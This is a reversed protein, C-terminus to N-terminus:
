RYKSAYFTAKLLKSKCIIKTKRTLRKFTLENNSSINQLMIPLPIIESSNKKMVKCINDYLKAPHPNQAIYIYKLFIFIQYLFMMAIFHISVYFLSYNLLCYSFICNWKRIVETSNKSFSYRKYMKIMISQMYIYCFNLYFDKIHNNRILKFNFFGLQSLFYIKASIKFLFSPQSVSSYSSIILFHM